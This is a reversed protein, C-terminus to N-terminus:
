CKCPVALLVLGPMVVTNWVHGYRISNYLYLAVELSLFKLVFWPELKKPPLKLLESLILTEIKKLLCLCDWCRLLHNKRLFLGMWKWILLVLTVLDAFFFSTSSNWCQFWCAAEQWLGFHKMSWMWTWFGIRFAQDCESSVTTDDAYIAINCFVDDPLDNIYLLFYKPGLTSGQPVGTNIPYEQSLEWGSGISAM